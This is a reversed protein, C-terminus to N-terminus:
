GLIRVWLLCHILILHRTQHFRVVEVRLHRPKVVACSGWDPFSGVQESVRSRGYALSFGGANASESLRFALRCTKMWQGSIGLEGHNVYM